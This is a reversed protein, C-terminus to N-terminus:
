DNPTVSYKSKKKEWSLCKSGIQPSFCSGVESLVGSSKDLGTRGDNFVVMLNLGEVDALALCLLITGRLGLVTPATVLAIV